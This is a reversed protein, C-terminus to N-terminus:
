TFSPSSGCSSASRVSSDGATRVPAGLIRCRPSVDGPVRDLGFWNGRFGTVVGREVALQGGGQGAISRQGDVGRCRRRGQFGPLWELQHPPRDPRGGTQGSSSRLMTIRGSLSPASFAARISSPEGTSPTLRRRHRGRRQRDRHRARAPHAEAARIQEPEGEVELVLWGFHNEIAARRINPVVDFDKVLHYIVPQTVREEPFTLRWHEAM